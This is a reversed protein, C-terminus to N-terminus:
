EFILYGEITAAFPITLDFSGVSDVVAVDEYQKDKLELITLSSTDPDIIWYAPIGAEAYVFRKETLDLVRTAPSLIEVVLDPIGVVSQGGVLKEDVVQVDPRKVVDPRILLDAEVLVRQTPLKRPHLFAVVAAALVQHRTNPAPTVILTGFSIEHRNGDDTLDQLDSYTFVPGKRLFTSMSM